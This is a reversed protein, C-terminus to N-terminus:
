AGAFRVAMRVQGDRLLCRRDVRLVTADRPEALHGLDPHPLSPLHLRITQGSTVPATAPVLMLTGGESVNVTRAPLERRSPGHEFRAGMAIPFRNYRRRERGQYESM